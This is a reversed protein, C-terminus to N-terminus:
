LSTAGKQVVKILTCLVKELEVFKGKLKLDEPTYQLRVAVTWQYHTERLSGFAMELFRSFEKDSERGCGEVINSPVSLVARRIQSTLGYMEEKPFSRTLEYILLVLEDALTFAKYQHHNRM